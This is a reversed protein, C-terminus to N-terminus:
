CSTLLKSEGGEDDDSEKRRRVKSKAKVKSPKDGTPADDVEAYAM